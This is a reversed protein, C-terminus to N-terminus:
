RREAGGEGLDYREFRNGSALEITREIVFESCPRTEDTRADLIAHRAGEGTNRYCGM